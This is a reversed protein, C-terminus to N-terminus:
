KKVEQKAWRSYIDELEGAKDCPRIEGNDMADDMQIKMRLARYIMPWAGIQNVTHRGLHHLALVLLVFLCAVGTLLTGMVAYAMIVQYM